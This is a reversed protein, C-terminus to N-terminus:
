FLSLKYELSRLLGLKGSKLKMCNATYYYQTHETCNAICCYEVHETCNAICCYEIHETCNATCCYQIHEIDSQLLIFSEVSYIAHFNKSDNAFM